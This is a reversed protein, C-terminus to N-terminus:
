SAARRESRRAAESMEARRAREAAELHVAHPRKERADDGAAAYFGPPLAHKLALLMHGFAHPSKSAKAEAVRDRFYAECEAQPTKLPPAQGYGHPAEEIFDPALSALFAAIKDANRKYPTKGTTLWRSVTSEDVRVRLAVERLPM